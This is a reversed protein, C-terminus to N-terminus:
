WAVQAKTHIASLFDEITPAAPNRVSLTNWDFIATAAGPAATAVPGMPWSGWGPDGIPEFDGPEIAGPFSTSDAQWYRPVTLCFILLGILAGVYPWRSPKREIQM